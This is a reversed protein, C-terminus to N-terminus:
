WPGRVQLMIRTDPTLVDWGSCQVSLNPHTSGPKFTTLRFPSGSLMLPLRMGLSLAM